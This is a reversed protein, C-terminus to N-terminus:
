NGVSQKPSGFLRFDSSALHPSYPRLELV